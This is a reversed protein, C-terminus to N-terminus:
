CRDLRGTCWDDLEALYQLLAADSGRHAALPVAPAIRGAFGARTESLLAAERDVSGFWGGTWPHFIRIAAKARGLACASM